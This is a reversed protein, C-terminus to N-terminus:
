ILENRRQKLKNRIKKLEAEKNEAEAEKNEAEPMQEFLVPYLKMMFIKIVGACPSGLILGWFGFLKGGALMAFMSVLPHIGISDGVIKPSIYNDFIFNVTQVMLVMIVCALLNGGSTFYAILGAIFSILFMGIYPIVSLFITVCGIVLSYKNHFFFSIIYSGIGVTIGFLTSSTIMGRIYNELVQIINESINKIYSAYPSKNLLYIIREKLPKMLVLFYFTFIPILIINFIHSLFSSVNSIANNVFKVLFDGIEQQKSLLFEIADEKNINEKLIPFKEYLGNLFIYFSKQIKEVENTSGAKKNTDEATENTSEKTTVTNDNIKNKEAILGAKHIESISVNINTTIQVVQKTLPPIIFLVATLILILCSGFSISVALNRKLGIKELLEAYINLFWAIVAGILFPTAVDITNFLLVLLLLIFLWSIWKPITPTQENNEM